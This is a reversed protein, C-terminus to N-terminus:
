CHGEKSILVPNVPDVKRFMADPIRAISPFNEADDKVTKPFQYLAFGATEENELIQIGEKEYVFQLILSWYLQTAHDVQLDYYIGAVMEYVELRAKDLGVSRGIMCRLYIGFLFNWLCPLGYKKLESIKTLTPQYGMENFMRIVQENMVKYFPESNPINLIQTFLKNSLRFKKENMLQFTIIMM